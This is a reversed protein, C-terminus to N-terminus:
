IEKVFYFLELKDVCVVIGPASPAAMQSQQYQKRKQIFSKSCDVHPLFLLYIIKKHSSNLYICIKIFGFTFATTMSPFKIGFGFQSHALLIVLKKLRVLSM